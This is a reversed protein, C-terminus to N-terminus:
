NLKCFSSIRYLQAILPSILCNRKIQAKESLTIKKPYYEPESHNKAMVILARGYKKLDRTALDQHHPRTPQLAKMKICTRYGKYRSARTAKECGRRYTPSICWQAVDLQSTNVHVDDVDISFAIRVIKVKLRSISLLSQTM